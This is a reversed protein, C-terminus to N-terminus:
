SRRDPRLTITRKLTKAEKGGKPTFAVTVRTSYRGRRALARRSGERLWAVADVVSRQGVARRLPRIGRGSLTLRGPGVGSVTLRASTRGASLRAVKFGCGTAHMPLRKVSRKGNHGDFTVDSFQQATCLNRNSALVGHEGGDIALDFRSIPADPIVPFTTVLHDDEVTSDAWVDLAIEGRLAVWLKPLTRRVQGTATRRLGEVFYVPGTLPRSLAPSEASARGIISGEPCQKAQAQEPKCLAQANDPDLAVSLPLRVAVRKLGAEGRAQTLTARVGPHRGVKTERVDGALALSLAPRLPLAACGQAQYPAQLQAVTGAVGTVAVGVTMPDCSTANFTFGPRDLTINITKLRLPVGELITPLPDSPVSLEATTADVHIPARVVVTGLDFPGAIARVVVALSYPAGKYPGGLFVKGPLTFPQSGAGAAVTTTGVQSEAGCTGAAAAADACPPVSGVMGLLGPPMDVSLGSLDQDGDARRLTLTFPSFEGALPNLTGAELTPAFPQAGGCGDVEFTSSPRVTAGAYPMLETTTTKAGCTQPNALPARPGGKFRVKLESFPLQPTNDFVATVQGTREDPHVTGPIKVVLGHGRVVIMLRFLQDPTPSRLYVEGTLDDPLLPTTVAVTGIKSADPCAPEVTTGLRAQEDSCGELGSASPPSIAVGEPLTVVAKRLQPTALGDPDQNQPVRLDVDYASPTDRTSTQPRLDISSDFQLRECGELAPLTSSAEVWRDPTQWSRMRIRTTLAEDCRAPLSLFPRRPEPSPATSFDPGAFREADHAPDAPVGWLTLRTAYIPLAQNANEITARLGHDGDTRATVAIRVVVGIVAFALVATEGDATTMNYVATPFKGGFPTAPVPSLQVYAIGVQSELPCFGEGVALQEPTCRPFAEPNGYFGAPLDVQVDRLQEDPLTAGSPSTATTLRFDTTLDGHAGAQSVTSYSSLPPLLGSGTFDVAPAPAHFLSSYSEMGFAARAPAAAGLGALALVSLMVLVRAGRRASSMPAALMAIGPVSM